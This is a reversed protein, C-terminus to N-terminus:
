ILKFQFLFHVRFVYKWDYVADFYFNHTDDKSNTTRQSSESMPRRISVQRTQNDIDVVRIIFLFNRILFYFVFLFREYGTDQEKDDM